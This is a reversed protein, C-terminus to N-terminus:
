TNLFYDGLATRILSRRLLLFRVPFIGLSSLPFPFFFFFASAREWPGNESPGLPPSRANPRTAVLRLHACATAYKAPASPAGYIPGEKKRKTKQPQPDASQPVCVGRASPASVAVFGFHGFSM